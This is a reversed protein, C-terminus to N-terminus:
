LLAAIATAEIQEAADAGLLVPWDFPDAPLTGHSGKVRQPQDARIRRMAPDFFLETPDYGPKKHIDVTWAFDPAQAWDDWWRYEFWADEQSFLVLDGARPTNLGIAKRQEGCYCEAVESLDTLLDRARDIAAEDRCYVHAVQHDCMAFCDSRRYDVERNDDTVLLGAERLRANPAISRSVATMGYESFVLVRGGEAQAQEVLPTLLTLVEGLMASVAPDNPGLRQLDYDMQSVYVWQLDPEHWQWIREAAAAIWKSSELNAMPGWYHHLPFEGLEARLTPHLDNPRSWCNSITKGDPTHQPKPTLVIDAAGRSSQVMLMAVKRRDNKWVRPAALLANSQEWFSVRTRHEAHNVLDLHRHLSSDRYTALGNAVIGHEQPLVGTSYTAQAPMTVAPLVPRIRSRSDDRLAAFWAPVTRPNLQDLLRGSLGPIDLLLTRM